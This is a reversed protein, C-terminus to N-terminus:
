SAYETSLLQTKDSPNLDESCGTQTDWICSTGDLCSVEDTLESCNVKKMELFELDLRCGWVLCWLLLLVLGVTVLTQLNLKFKM